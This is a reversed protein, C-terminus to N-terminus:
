SINPWKGYKNPLLLLHRKQDVLLMKLEQSMRGQATDEFENWLPMSSCNPFLLHVMAYGFATALPEPWLLLEILLVLCCQLSLHLWAAQSWQLPSPTPLACLSSQGPCAPWSLWLCRMGRETNSTIRLATPHWLFVKYFPFSMILITDKSSLQCNCSALLSLGTLHSNCYDLPLFSGAQVLASAM